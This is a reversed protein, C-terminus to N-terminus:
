PNIKTDITFGQEVARVDGLLSESRGPSDPPYRAAKDVRDIDLEKLHNLLQQVQETTTFTSGIITGGFLTNPKSM